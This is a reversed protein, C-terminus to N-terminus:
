KSCKPKILTMQHQQAIDDLKLLFKSLSTYTFHEKQSKFYQQLDTRVRRECVDINKVAYTRIVKFHGGTTPISTNLTNLRNKLNITKGIKVSKPFLASKIVYIFGKTPRGEVISQNLLDQFKDISKNVTHAAREMIWEILLSMRASNTLVILKLVGALNIYLVNGKLSPRRFRNSRIIEKPGLKKGLRKYNKSFGMIAKIDCLRYWDVNRYSVVDLAITRGGPNLKLTATKM